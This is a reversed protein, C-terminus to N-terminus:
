PAIGRPAAPPVALKLLKSSIGLGQRAAAAENIEFRVRNDRIVFHIVGQEPAPATEDTVTLIPYGSTARLADSGQEGIYVVDCDRLTKVETVERVAIPRNNIKQNAISKELIDGFPDRGAICISFPATRPEPWQVFPAFKYLYAAKVAYEISLNGEAAAVSRTVMAGVAILATAALFVVSRPATLLGM